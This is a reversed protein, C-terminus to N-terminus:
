WWFMKQAAVSIGGTPYNIDNPLDDPDQRIQFTLDRRRHNTTTTTTTTTTAARRGGDGCRVETSVEFGILLL